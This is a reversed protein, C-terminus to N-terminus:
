NFLYFNSCSFFTETSLSQSLASCNLLQHKIKKYDSMAAHKQKFDRNLTKLCLLSHYKVVSGWPWMIIYLFYM